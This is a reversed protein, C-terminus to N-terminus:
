ITFKKELWKVCQFAEAYKVGVEYGANAAENRKYDVWQGKTREMEAKYCALAEAKVDWTGSIDVYFNPHFEMGSQYWNSRYALIKNLHRGAHLSAKALATHDHNADFRWHTYMLGIKHDNIIRILECDLQDCFELEMSKFQGELLVAGIIDAAAQGDRHSEDSKRFPDGYPNTGGSNTAVYIFVDDGGLVHKRLSGGCGLEVDDHHAGVALVNM